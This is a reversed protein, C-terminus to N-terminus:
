VVTVSDIMDQVTISTPSLKLSMAPEMGSFTL